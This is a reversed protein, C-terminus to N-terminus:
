MFSPIFEGSKFHFRDSEEDSQCHDLLEGYFRRRNDISGFGFVMTGSNTGDPLATAKFDRALKVLRSLEVQADNGSNYHIRVEYNGNGNAM